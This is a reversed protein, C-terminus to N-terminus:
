CIDMADELVVAGNSTEGYSSGPVGKNLVRENIFAVADDIGKPSHFWHGGDPYERWVVDAGFGRLTDRLTRGHAVLVTGDDACHELLVPTNRIMGDDHSAPAGELDVIRRTEALARGPFPMRCSFGLFAALRPKATERPEQQQYPAENSNLNLLTHVATAAGQSIGALIVRDSRGDLSTIETAIISRISAVSEKLGPAQIYEREAFDRTDWIDFWQSWGSGPLAACDRIESQPFVWRFSPFNDLLTHNNSDTSRSLSAAFTRAHDGRGHLFVVTHTHETSPPIICRGLDM